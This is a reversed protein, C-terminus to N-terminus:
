ERVDIEPQDCKNTVFLNRGNALAEDIISISLKKIWPRNAEVDRKRNVYKKDRGWAYPDSRELIREALTMM